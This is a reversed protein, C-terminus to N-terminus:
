IANVSGRAFLHAKLHASHKVGQLRTPVTRSAKSGFHLDIRGQSGRFIMTPKRLFPGGEVEEQLLHGKWGRALDAEHRIFGVKWDADASAWLSHKDGDNSLGM